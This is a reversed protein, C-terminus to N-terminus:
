ISIHYWNGDQKVWKEEVTRQFSGKKEMGPILYRYEINMKVHGENGSTWLELINFGVWKAIFRGNQNFYGHLNVRGRYEPSEYAYCKDWEGKIKFSWYEQVRRRLVAEEEEKIIPKPACQVTV